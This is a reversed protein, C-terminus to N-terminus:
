RPVDRRDDRASPTLLLTVIAHPGATFRVATGGEELELAEPEREDARSRAASALPAGVRLRGEVAEGSANYCRFVLESGDGEAPKLASFVLGEGELRIDIAAPDLATAQRLWLARPPVFADEWLEALPAVRRVDRASVPAMALQLRERGLCQAGPAPTPWGAHGPRTPLDERSLEGVCRLLTLLLDGDQDLEYEFFGPAFVALAVEGGAAVFRQAPATTVPTERPYREPDFAPRERRVAGFPGGAVADSAPAGTPLRLRLRQDGVGNDIELTCRLLPSGAYLTLTLKARVGGGRLQSRVELAGVLPGGAVMRPHSWTGWEPRDDELPAFSYTDGRDRETELALLRRFRRGSALATLEVLGDSGVRVEVLGNSMRARGVEVAGPGVASGGRGITFGGLPPLALAVRVVEVEDQDPYHRPADLRESARRRGLVQHPVGGLAAAVDRASPSPGRRPVRSGPPGVLVDRRFWTLDAVVVGARERPVPNYLLLAPSARDPRERAVDPDNGTLADLSARAIEHAAAAADGVRLAVREAVADSTCGGISDHFQSRLLTRWAHALLPRADRGRHGLALAVLPEALRELALEAEAHLRKLPARTSHVGQLTWTYGYSWRLEGEISPVEGATREAAALYEDLRSVRVEADPELPALLDPLGAVDPHAAHHDAGVFVAVHPSRARPELRRKLIAWADPLRSDAPLGAGAEYGDPSLHHLLLVRGDPARWRFLDGEQGPEGGLGRWLVGHRIGFEAGIAPWTAPHGFADPSYLVDLRGGLREAQARGALLNRVLSEGSPVLEDALVYWPGTQLRGAAILAEVRGTMEPRVALYDELLVTQGDLVFAPFGAEHELREILEDLAPVLRCVFAARTLYWERDWHTHPILHYTRPPM